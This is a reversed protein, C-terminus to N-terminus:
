MKNRESPRPELRTLSGCHEADWLARDAGAEQQGDPGAAEFSFLEEPIIKGTSSLVMEQNRLM